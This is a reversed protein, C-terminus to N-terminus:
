VIFSRKESLLRQVTNAFCLLLQLFVKFLLPGAGNDHCGLGIHKHNLDTKGRLRRYLDSIRRQRQGFVETAKM